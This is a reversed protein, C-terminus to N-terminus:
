SRMISKMIRKQENISLTSVEFVFGNIQEKKTLKGLFILDKLSALDLRKEAPKPEEAGAALKEMESLRNTTSGDAESGLVKGSRKPM